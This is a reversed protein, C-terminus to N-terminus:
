FDLMGIAVFIRSGCTLSCLQLSIVFPTPAGGCLETSHSKTGKKRYVLVEYTADITVFFLFRIDSPGNDSGTSPAKTTGHRASVSTCCPRMMPRTSCTM